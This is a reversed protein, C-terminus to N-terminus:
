DRCRNPRNDSLMYPENVGITCAQYEALLPSKKPPITKVRGGLVSVGFVCFKDQFYLSARNETPELKACYQCIASLLAAM